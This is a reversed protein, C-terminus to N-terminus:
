KAEEPSEQLHLGCETKPRDAWRGGREDDSKRTCPWCGVSGYGQSLLPNVPLDRSRIYAQVEDRSWAVLPNIKTMEFKEDWEVVAANARAPSQDRRIGSIWADYEGLVSRLPTVKRIACCADPDREWLRPGHLKEQVKLSPGAARQVRVGFREQVDHRLGYTENFLLGTDLLVTDVTRGLRSLLDLVVISQPGLSTSLVVRDRFRRTAWDLVELADETSPPSLNPQNEHFM